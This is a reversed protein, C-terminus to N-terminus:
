TRPPLTSTAPWWIRRLAPAPRARTTPDSFADFRGTVQAAVPVGDLATPVGSVGANVLFIRVAAHGNPLLGVATGVVGPIQLLQATHRQQAAIAAAIDQGRQLNFEPGTLPDPARDSCGLWLAAGLGIVAIRFTRM